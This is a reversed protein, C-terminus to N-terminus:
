RRIGILHPSLDRARPFLRGSPAKRERPGTSSLLFDNAGATRLITIAAAVAAMRIGAVAAPVLAPVAAVAAEVPIRGALGATFMRGHGARNAESGFSRPPSGSLSSHPLKNVSDRRNRRITPLSRRTSGIGMTRRVMIRRLLLSAPVGAALETKVRLGTIWGRGDQDVRLQIRTRTRRAAIRSAARLGRVPLLRGMWGEGVQAMRRVARRLRRPL